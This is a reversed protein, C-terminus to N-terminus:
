AGEGLDAVSGSVDPRYGHVALAQVLERQLCVADDQSMDLVGHTFRTTIHTGGLITTHSSVNQVAGLTLGVNAFQGNHRISASM